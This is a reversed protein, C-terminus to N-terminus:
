IELGRRFYNYVRLYEADPLVRNYSAYQYMDSGWFDEYSYRAGITFGSLQNIGANGVSELSANKYIKSNVGDAVFGFIYDTTGTCVGGSIGDTGAGLSINSNSLAGYVRDVSDDGDFIYRWGAMSPPTKAACIITMGSPIVPTNARVGCDDAGFRGCTGALAFDNADVGATSGVQLHNGNGSLDYIQQATNLPSSFNYWVALGNRPMGFMVMDLPHMGLQKIRRAISRTM